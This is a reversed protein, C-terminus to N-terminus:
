NIGKFICIFRYYSKFICLKFTNLTSEECSKIIWNNKRQFANAYVIFYFKIQIIGLIIDIIFINRKSLFFAIFVSKIFIFSNFYIFILGCLYRCISIPFRSIIYLMNFDFLIAFLNLLRIIHCFFSYNIKNIWNEYIFVFVCSWLYIIWIKFICYNLLYTFFM